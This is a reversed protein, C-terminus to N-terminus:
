VMKRAEAGGSIRRVKDATSGMIGDETLMRERRERMRALRYKGIDEEAKLLDEYLTQSCTFKIIVFATELMFVAALFVLYVAMGMPREGLLGHLDELKSLLADGKQTSVKGAHERAEQELREKERDLKARLGQLSAKREDAARKKAKAVPGEGYKRTGGKGDMDLIYAAHLRKYDAEEDAIESRLGDLSGHHQAVHGDLAEQYIAEGKAVRYEELDGGFVMLDLALAGLLTTILAFALRYYLLVAGHEGKPSAIFSRDIILMVGGLFLGVMSAAFLTAGMLHRSIYFGSVIWLMVPILLLTGLTVIKQRSATPQARVKDYDYGFLRTFLQLVTM